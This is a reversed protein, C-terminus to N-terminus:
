LAAKSDTATSEFMASFEEEEQAVHLRVLASLGYLLRRLDPLDASEFGDAAIDELMRGLVRTLHAIEVHM